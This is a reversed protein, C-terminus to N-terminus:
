RDNLVPAPLAAEVDAAAALLAGEGFPRGTFQFAMPLGDGSLGMPLTIAPAGAFNAIASFDAQNAPAPQDFSFAAQAAGPSAILDVEGLLRRVEFGLRHVVQQAKVLRAAGVDRGYELMGRFEPTYVELTAAMGAEHIVWGEAETILLGARRARTPAYDALSLPVIEADLAAIKGLALDASAM